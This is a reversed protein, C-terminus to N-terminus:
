PPPTWTWTRNTVLRSEQPTGVFNEAVPGYYHWSRCYLTANALYYSLTNITVNWGATGIPVSPTYGSLAEGYERLVLRGPPLVVEPTPNPAETAPIVLPIRWEVVSTKGKQYIEIQWDKVLNQVIGTGLSESFANRAPNDEYAVVGKWVPLGAPNTNGTDVMIQIRDARKGFPGDARGMVLWIRTKGPVDIIANGGAYQLESFETPPPTFVEVSRWRVAGTVDLPYMRHSGALWDPINVRVGAFQSNGSRELTYNSAYRYGKFEVTVPDDFEGSIGKFMLSMPPLIFTENSFAGTGNYAPLTVTVEKTLNAWLTVTADNWDKNDDGYSARAPETWVELDEPEVLIVNPFLIFGPPFMPPGAVYWIYSGNWVTKWLEAANANDTIMAVPQFNDAIPQWMFVMLEDAEGGFSRRNHDLALFRLITPHNPTGPSAPPSSNSPLQVTVLGSSGYFKKAPDETKEYAFTPLLIVAFSVALLTLTLVIGLVNKKNMREGGRFHILIHTITYLTYTKIIQSIDEISM